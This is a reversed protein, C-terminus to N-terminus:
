GSSRGHTGDQARFYLVGDVDTLQSPNSSSVGSRANIDRVLRTGELTGDSRWLEAGMAPGAAAFYLVGGMVTLTQFIRGQGGLPLTFLLRNGSPSGDSEWLEFSSPGAVAFFLRNGVGRFDIGQERAANRVPVAGPQTGDYKWLGWRLRDYAVFYLTGNVWESRGWFQFGAGSAADRLRFTGHPTGDTGWVTYVHQLQQGYTGALTVQMFFVLGGGGPGIGAIRSSHPYYPDNLSRTDKVLVTGEPTGDSKWLEDANSGTNASFYLTGEVNVFHDLVSSRSGAALDRLLVTGEPTGDSKWLEQGYGPSNARFYLTGNVGPALHSIAPDISGMPGPYIDRVLLTGEPTGNSKWLERGVVGDNAHFFLTDGVATLASPGDLLAAAPGPQIDKLLLTGEPTGDSRWLEKGHVGDNAVFFLTSGVATFKPDDTLSVGSPGPIADKVLVTGESTGDSKWLERGHVGDDALFFLTNGVIIFSSPESSQTEWSGIDKLLEIRPPVEPALECVASDRCGVICAALVALASAGVRADFERELLHPVM